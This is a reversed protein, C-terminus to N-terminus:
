RAAKPEICRRLEESLLQASAPSAAVLAAQQWYVASGRDPRIEICPMGLRCNLMVANSDAEFSISQAAVAMRAKAAIYLGDFRLEPCSLSVGRVNFVGHNGVPYAPAVYDLAVLQRKLDVTRSDLGFLAKARDLLQSLGGGEGSAQTPAANPDTASEQQALATAACSGFVAILAAHAVASRCRMLERGFLKGARHALRALKNAFGNGPRCRSSVRPPKPPAEAM